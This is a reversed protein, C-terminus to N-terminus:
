KTLRDRKSSELTNVVYLCNHAHIAAGAFLLAAIVVNRVDPTFLSLIALNMAVLVAAIALAADRNRITTRGTRYLWSALLGGTLVMAAAIITLVM